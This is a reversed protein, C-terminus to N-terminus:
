SGPRPRATSPTNSPAATSPKPPPPATNNTTAPKVTGTTGTTAPRASQSAQPSTGGGTVPATGTNTAAPPAPRVPEPEQGPIMVPKSLIGAILERLGADSNNHRDKYIATLLTMVKNKEAQQEPKTSVAVFRAQTDIIRDKIKDLQVQLREYEPQREPTIETGSPFKQQYEAAAKQYEKRYLFALTDYTSPERSAASGTSQAAKILAKVAADPQTEVLLLGEMYHLWGLTDEKGTFPAWNDTAKGAEVLQRTRRIFGLADNTAAKNGKGVALYGARALTLNVRVNDPESALKQRGLTAAEAFKGQEVAANLQRAFEAERFARDAEEYRAMWGKIFTAIQVDSEDTLAGYRALYDKGIQYAEKQQLATKAPDNTTGNYNEIFKQYLAARAENEQAAADQAFARPASFAAALAIVTLLRLANRM